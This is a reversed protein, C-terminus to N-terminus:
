VAFGAAACGGPAMLGRSLLAPSSALGLSRMEDGFGALHNRQMGTKAFSGYGGKGQPESILGLQVLGDMAQRATTRSVGFLGCPEAETPM